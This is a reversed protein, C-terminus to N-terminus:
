LKFKTPRAFDAMHRSIPERKLVSSPSNVAPATTSDFFPGFSKPVWQENNITNHSNNNNSSNSNNSNNSNSSNSSNSNNSNNSNSSHDDDEDDDSATLDIFCHSPVPSHCLPMEGKLFKSHTRHQDAESLDSFYGHDDLSSFRSRQRPMESEACSSTYSSQIDQSSVLATDTTATFSLVPLLSPRAEPRQDSLPILVDHQKGASFQIAKVFKLLGNTRWRIPLALHDDKKFHPTRDAISLMEDM